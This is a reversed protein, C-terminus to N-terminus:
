RTLILGKSTVVVWRGEQRRIAEIRGIGPLNDGPEVEMVGGARAQILAAGNYVSRVRWGELVPPNAPRAEPAAGLQPAPALAAVSGTIDHAAAAVSMAPARREIRDVAEALKALKAAPEAQVKEFRDLRDGLKIFQASATRASGDISTKLAAIEAHLRAIQDKLARADASQAAPERAAPVGVGGTAFSGAMAGLAAAVAITAALPALRRARALSLSTTWGSLLSPAAAPAITEDARVDALRIEDPRPMVPEAIASDLRPSELTAAIPATEPTTAPVLAADPEPQPLAAVTAVESTAPEPPAAEVSAPALTEPEGVTPEQAQPNPQDGKRKGM